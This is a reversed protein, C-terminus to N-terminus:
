EYVVFKVKLLQLVSGMGRTDGGRYWDEVLATKLVTDGLIALRRNGDPFRQFGISHYTTPAGELSGSRVVSGPAQLAEWLYLVNKFNYGIKTQAKRLTDGM